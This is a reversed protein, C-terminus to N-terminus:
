LADIKIERCICSHIGYSPMTIKKPLIHLSLIGHQNNLFVATRKSHCIESAVFQDCFYVLLLVTVHFKKNAILVPFSESNLVAFIDYSIQM